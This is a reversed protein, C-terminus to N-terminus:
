YGAINHEYFSTYNYVRADGEDHGEYTAGDGLYHKTSTM